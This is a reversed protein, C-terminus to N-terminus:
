EYSHYRLCTAGWYNAGGAAWYVGQVYRRVKEPLTPKPGMLEDALAMAEKEYKMVLSKVRERAEEISLDEITQLATVTDVPYGLGKKFAALRSVRPRLKGEIKAIEEATVDIGSGYAAMASMPPFGFNNLCHALFEDISTFSSVDREQTNELWNVWTSLAFVAQSRDVAVFKKIVLAFFHELPTEPLITTKSEILRKLRVHVKQAEERTM